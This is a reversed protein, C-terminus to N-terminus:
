MNENVNRDKPINMSLVYLGIATSTNQNNGTEHQIGIQRREVSHITRRRNISPCILSSDTITQLASLANNIEAITRTVVVIAIEPEKEKEPVPPDDQRYM